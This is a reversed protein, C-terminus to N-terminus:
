DRFRRILAVLVALGVLGCVGAAIGFYVRDGTGLGFVGGFALGGFVWALGLLGFVAKVSKLVPLPLGPVPRRSAGAQGDEGAQSLSGTGSCAHCRIQAQGTNGALVTWVSGTGACTLCREGM